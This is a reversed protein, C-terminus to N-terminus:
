VRVARGSRDVVQGGAAAWAGMGGSLNVADYGM